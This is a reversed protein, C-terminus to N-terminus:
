FFNMAVPKIGAYKKKRELNKRILSIEFDALINTYSASAEEESSFPNRYKANKATMYYFHDASQLRGWKALSKECGSGKVMKELNYIKKVMNNQVMNESWVCSNDGKDEWSVTKTAQYTDAPTSMQVVESPLSFLYGTDKLVERPLAELFDFIGSDRKKHVGFTEYDMFLNIVETNQPHSHLWESFKDATLPHESWNTDGFRFAIDDSLRANRLLLSVSTEAAALYVHNPSRGKLVSEAGECLVGSFGMPAVQAALSDNYILETNRFVSPRNGFLEQIMDAHKNVQRDFENASHLFALSHYYTEGLLEVCGTAVLKRFSSIVDPRYRQLLELTIGSVSFSVRFSSKNALISQYIIDNAPLYCQDAAVDISARTALDDTYCHVVDIDQPRYRKLKYPQHVKFYLCVSTMIVNEIFPLSFPEQEECPRQGYQRDLGFGV